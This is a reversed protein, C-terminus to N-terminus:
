GVRSRLIFPPPRDPQITVLGVPTVPPHPALEIRFAHVMTAVVLVLETLAFPAGVCIRSGAGFPMYTFRPPAAGTLFRGPDFRAPSTWYRRHRHLIWPAILLLAGKPVPIGAADDPGLARRVIVFAPPYLRLAEDVVARTYVLQPLIEAANEPAPAFEAVEASLREQVDEHQALLYLTWFLAAATTEHGAVVITAVQDGLKEADPLVGTEPDPRALVNFLDRAEAGAPRARREAIIRDILRRWRRRFRLRAIDSPTLIGPPLLFDALSPRGLRAAYRLILERLEGAYRAMDLSFIAGGIIDLALRQFRSVLDVTEDGDAALEAALASAAAVVRPALAQVMRPAFGPAVERRQHRWEEGNSLFLGRGFMPRLVRAATPSRMYNQPNDVLVHRIAEPQQLLIHQRGLFSQVVVEEAFAEDPFAALANGRLAGSVARWSLRSAPAAPSIPRNLTLTQV